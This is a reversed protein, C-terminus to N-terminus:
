KARKRWKLRVTIFANPKGSWTAKLRHKRLVSIVERAIAGVAQKGRTSWYCLRLVGREVAETTQQEHFFVYGRAPRSRPRRKVIRAMAQHGCDACCPLNERSPIGARDLAAFAAALRDCDTVKTWAASEKAALSREMPLNLRVLETLERRTADSKFEDLVRKTVQRDTVYGARVHLRIAREVLTSLPEDPPADAPDFVALEVTGPPLPPLRSERRTPM